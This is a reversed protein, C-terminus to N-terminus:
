PDMKSALLPSCSHMTEAFKASVTQHAGHLSKSVPLKWSKEKFLIFFSHSDQASHVLSRSTVVVFQVFSTMLFSATKAILSFVPWIINNGARQTLHCAQIHSGKKVEGYCTCTVSQSTNFHYLKLAAWWTLAALWMCTTALAAVTLIMTQQSRQTRFVWFTFQNISQFFHM